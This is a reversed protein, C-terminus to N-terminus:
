KGNATRQAKLLMLEESLPRIPSAGPMGVRQFAATPIDGEGPHPLSGLKRFVTIVEGVAFARDVLTFLVVAGNAVVGAPRCRGHIYYRALSYQSCRSTHYTRNTSSHTTLISYHKIM